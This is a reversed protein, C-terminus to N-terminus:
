TRPPLPPRKGEQRERSRTPGGPAEPVDIVELKKREMIERFENRSVILLILAILGFIFGLWLPGSAIMGTFSGLIPFVFNTGSFAFLAGFFAITSLFLYIAAWREYLDSSWTGTSELSLLLNSIGYAIGAFSSLLLFVGALIRKEV